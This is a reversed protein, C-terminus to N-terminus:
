YPAKYNENRFKKIVQVTLFASVFIVILLLIRDVNPLEFSFSLGLWLICSLTNAGFLIGWIVEKIKKYTSRGTLYKIYLFCIIGIGLIILLSKLFPLTNPEDWPMDIFVMNALYTMNFIFVFILVYYLLFWEGLYVLPFISKKLM